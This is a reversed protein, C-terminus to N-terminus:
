LILGSSFHTNSVDLMNVPRSIMSTGSWGQDLRPSAPSLSEQPISTWPPMRGPEAGQLRSAPEPDAHSRQRPRPHDYPGFYGGIGAGNFSQGDRSEAPSRVAALRLMLDDVCQPFRSFEGKGQHRFDIAHYDSVQGRRGHPYRVPGAPPIPEAGERHRWLVLPLPNAACEHFVCQCFQPISTSGPTDNESFGSVISAETESGLRRQNQWTNRGFIELGEGDPSGQGSSGDGIVSGELNARLLMGPSGSPHVRRRRRAAEVEHISRREDGVIVPHVVEPSHLLNGELHVMRVDDARIGVGWPLAQMGTVSAKSSQRSGPSPTAEPMNKPSVTGQAAVACPCDYRRM